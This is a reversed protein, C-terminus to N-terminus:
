NHYPGPHHPPRDTGPTLVDPVSNQLVRHGPSHLSSLFSSSPTPFFGLHQALRTSFSQTTNTLLLSQCVPHCKHPNPPLYLVKPPTKSSVHMQHYRHTPMYTVKLPMSILCEKNTNPPFTVKPPRSTLLHGRPPVQLSLTLEGHCQWPPLRRLAHEVSQPRLIM